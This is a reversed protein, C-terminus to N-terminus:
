DVIYIKTRQLENFNKIKEFDFGRAQKYKVNNRTDGCTYTSSQDRFVM